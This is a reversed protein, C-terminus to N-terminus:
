MEGGQKRHAALAASCTDQLHRSAPYKEMLYGLAEVLGKVEARLRAIELLQADEDTLVTGFLKSWSRVDPVAISGRRMNM